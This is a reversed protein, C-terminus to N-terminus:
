SMWWHNFDIIPTKPSIIIRSIERAAKRVKVISSNAVLAFFKNILRNPFILIPFANVFNLSLKTELFSSLSSFCVLFVFLFSSSFSSTSSSNSLLVIMISKSSSLSNSIVSLFSYLSSLSPFSILALSSKPKSISSVILFCISSAITSSSFGVFM